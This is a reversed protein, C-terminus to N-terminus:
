LEGSPKPGPKPGEPLFNNARLWAAIIKRGMASLSRDDARAAVELAAKEDPELRIGLAPEKPMSASYTM